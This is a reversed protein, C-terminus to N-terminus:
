NDRGFAFSIIFYITMAYWAGSIVINFSAPTGMANLLTTFALVISLVFNVGPIGALWELMAGFADSYAVGSVPAVENNSQPLNGSVTASNALSQCENTYSGLLTGKCSYFRTAEVDTDLSAINDMSLQALICLMNLVVVFIVATSSNGM